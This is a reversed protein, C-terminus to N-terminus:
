ALPYQKVSKNPNEFKHYNETQSEKLYSNETKHHRKFIKLRDVPLHTYTQELGHHGKKGTWAQGMEYSVTSLPCLLCQKIMKM